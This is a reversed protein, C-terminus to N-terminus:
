RQVRATFLRLEDKLATKLPYQSKYKVALEIALEKGGPYTAIKELTRVVGKYNRRNKAIKVENDASNALVKLCREPYLEVLKDRYKEVLFAYDPEASDMILDYRGETSLWIHILTLRESFVTLLDKWKELWEEKSFLAKYELYYQPDGPHDCMMRYLEANYSATDGQAKYIEMLSKRHGDSWYSDPRDEILGQYIAIAEDYNGYSTELQAMLVKNTYSDKSNLFERIEQIPKKQDALVRAYYHEIVPLSYQLSENEPIGRKIIEMRQLLFQEKRELQDIRNFHELIFRYVADEMYDVLRGDLLEMLGDLIQDSSISNSGEVYVVEWIDYICNCFEQTEGGSDDKDTNSWNVYTWNALEFLDAYNGQTVFDEQATELSEIVDECLRRCDRWDAFGSRTNELFASLISSKYDFLNM